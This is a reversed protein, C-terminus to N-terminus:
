QYICEKGNRNYYSAALDVLMVMGVVAKSRCYFRDYAPPRSLRQAVMVVVVVVV